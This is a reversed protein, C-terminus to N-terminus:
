LPVKKMEGASLTTFQIVDNYSISFQIKLISVFLCRNISIVYCHLLSIYDVLSFAFVINAVVWLTCTTSTLTRSFISLDYPTLFSGMEWNRRKGIKIKLPWLKKNCNTKSHRTEVNDHHLKLHISLSFNRLNYISCWLPTIELKTNRVFETFTAYM